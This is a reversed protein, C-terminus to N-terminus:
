EDLRPCNGRCCKRPIFQDYRCLVESSGDIYTHVERIQQRDCAAMIVSFPTTM